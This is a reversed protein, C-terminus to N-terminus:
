RRTTPLVWVADYIWGRFKLACTTGFPNTGITEQGWPSPYAVQRSRMLEQGDLRIVVDGTAEYGFAEPDFSAMELELVHGEPRPQFVATHVRPFTYNEFSFRLGGEHPEVFVISSRYHAGTTFIPEGGDQLEEPFVIKMRLTGGRKAWPDILGTSVEDDRYARTTRKRIEGSFSEGIMGGRTFDRPLPTVIKELALGGSFWVAASSRQRFHLPRRVRDWFGGTPASYLSPLQISVTHTHGLDWKLDRGWQVAGEGRVYGFQILREGVHKVLIREAARPDRARWFLEETGAPLPKFRVKLEQPGEVLGLKLGVSTLLGAGREEFVSWTKPATVRLQRGHYDFSLLVGVFCTVATASAALAAFPLRGGFRQAWREAALLGVLALLGAVVAFDAQYRTTTSFYCMVLAGVPVLYGAICYMTATFRRREEGARAQWALPLALLFWFFPYTVMLGAVEETGFYDPIHNIEVARALAYPFDASWGLSQFFYVYFNHALFRLSFHLLKGEYAGSLQYKQGWELPNGFRAYNHWALALGCLILPAAAAMGLRWWGRYGKRWALWMPVLLMACALLCTPRAGVGLGLFLGAAAMSWLPHLGHIARYVAVAGLLTFAIAASIPLEWIMPRQALALLHTGFGLALVGLPAILAHSQPFYRTRIALWLGCAALFAVTVFVFTAYGMTMERGMVLSYPLMLTAAPTPGFYVYYKGQYLSADGLKYPGNQEPDYPDALALLEPAPAKDLHLQGKRWGRVLLQFYDLNEWNEFGGNVKVTWHFFWVVISMSLAVLLGESWGAVLRDKRPENPAALVSSAPEAQSTSGPKKALPSNLRSSPTSM